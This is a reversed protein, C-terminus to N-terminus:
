EYIIQGCLEYHERWIMQSDSDQNPEEDSDEGPEENSDESPEENSDESPEEFVEYESIVVKEIELDSIVNNNEVLEYGEETLLIYQDSGFNIIHINNDMISIKYNMDFFFSQSQYKLARLVFTPTFLENGAYFWSDDLKLEISKNMEPHKYEISLFKASSQKFSIAPIPKDGRYVFYCKDNDENLVKLIFISTDQKINVDCFIKFYGNILDYLTTSTRFLCIFLEDFNIKYKEVLSYRDTVSKDNTVIWSNSMWPCTSPEIKQSTLFCYMNKIYYVATRIHINENYINNYYDNLRNSLKCGLLFTNVIIAPLNKNIFEM